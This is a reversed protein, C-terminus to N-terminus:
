PSTADPTALLPRTEGEPQWPMASHGIDARVELGVQQIASVVHGTEQLEGDPFIAAPQPPGTRSGHAVVAVPGHRPLLEAVDAALGEVATITM